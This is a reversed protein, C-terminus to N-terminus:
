DWIQFENAGEGRARPDGMMVGGHCNGNADVAIWAHGAYTSQTANSDPKLRHYAKWQGNFDIWMIDLPVQTGNYFLVKVPVNTAPSRVSGPPPCGRGVDPAPPPPPPAPARNPQPAAAVQRKGQNRACQRALDIAAAAGDLNFVQLGRDLNVAFDPANRFADLQDRDIAMSAWGDGEAAFAGMEAADGFGYYGQVKGRRGYYPVGIQWSNGDTAIRFQVQGNDTDAACYGFMPGVWVSVVNWRGANQYAKEDQAAAPVALWLGALAFLGAALISRGRM